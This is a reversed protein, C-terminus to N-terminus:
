RARCCGCGRRAARRSTPSRASGPWWRTTGAAGPPRSCARPDLAPGAGHAARPHRRGRGRGVPQQAPERVAAVDKRAVGSRQAATAPVVRRPLDATDFRNAAPQASAAATTVGLWPVSATAKVLARFASPDPDLTEPALVLMRRSTGPPESTAAATEALFHQAAGM